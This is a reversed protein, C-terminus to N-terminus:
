LEASNNSIWESRSIIGVNGIELLAIRVLVAMENATMWNKAVIKVEDLGAAIGEQEPYVSPVVLDVGVMFYEEAETEGGELLRFLHVMSRVTAPWFTVM